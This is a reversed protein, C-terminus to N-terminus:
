KTKARTSIHTLLPDSKQADHIKNTQEKNQKSHPRKEQLTSKTTKKPSSNLLRTNLEAKTRGKDNLGASNCAERLESIKLEAILEETYLKRTRSLISLLDKKLIRKEVEIVYLQAIELLRSKNLVSLITARRVTM